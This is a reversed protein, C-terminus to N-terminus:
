PLWAFNKMLRLAYCEVSKKLYSNITDMVNINFASIKFPLTLAYIFRNVHKLATTEVARGQVTLNEVELDAVFAKM